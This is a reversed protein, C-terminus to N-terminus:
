ARDAPLLVPKWVDVNPFLGANELLQSARRLIQAGTPVHRCRVAHLLLEHSGLSDLVGLVLGAVREAGLCDSVRYRAVRGHDAVNWWETSTREIWDRTGSFACSGETCDEGPTVM